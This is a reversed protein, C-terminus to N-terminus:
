DAIRSLKVEVRRNLKQSEEDMDRYLPQREGMGRESLHGSLEPYKKSLYAKVTAARDESLHDNYEEKGIIDTHGILVAQQKGEQLYQLLVKGLEDAQREGEPTLKASGSEFNIRLDLSHEESPVTSDFDKPSPPRHPKGSGKSVSKPKPSYDKRDLNAMTMPKPANDSPVKGIKIIRSKKCDMNVTREGQSEECANSSDAVQEKGLNEIEESAQFQRKMDDATLDTQSANLRKDEKEWRISHGPLSVAKRVFVKAIIIDPMSEYALGINGLADSKQAESLGGTTYAEKYAKIAKDPTGKQQLQKGLAMCDDYGNCISNPKSSSSPNVTSASGSPKTNAWGKGATTACGSFQLIALLGIVGIIERKRLIITKM